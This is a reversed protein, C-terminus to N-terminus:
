VAEHLAQYRKRSCGLMGMSLMLLSSPEPTSVPGQDVPPPPDSPHPLTSAGDLTTGPSFAMGNVSVHLVFPGTADPARALSSDKGGESGYSLLDVFLTNADQLTISDGANNLSLSGSSAVSANSFGQPNGGGFVVLFGYGPISATVPFVHRVQILDTLSWNALSVAGAGTNALEIFEDQTASIIGDGNADGSGSPPDALIENILIAAKASAPWLSLSLGSLLVWWLWQNKM